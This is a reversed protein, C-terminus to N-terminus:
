TPSGVLEGIQQNTVKVFHQGGLETVFQKRAKERLREVETVTVGNEHCYQYMERFVQLYREEKDEPMPVFVVKSKANASMCGGVRVGNM